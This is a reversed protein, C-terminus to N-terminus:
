FPSENQVIYLAKHSNTICLHYLNRKYTCLTITHLTVLVYAIGLELRSRIDFSSIVNTKLQKAHNYTLAKCNLCIWISFIYNPSIIQYKEKGKSLLANSCICSITNKQATEWILFHHHWNRWNLRLVLRHIIFVWNSHWHSPSTHFHSYPM